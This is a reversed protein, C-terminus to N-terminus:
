SRKEGLVASTKEIGMLRRGVNTLTKLKINPILDDPASIQLRERGEENLLSIFRIFRSNEQGIVTYKTYSLSLFTHSILYTCLCVFGIQKYLKSTIEKRACILAPAVLIALGVLAASQYRPSLSQAVGFRQRAIAPLILVSASFLAGTLWYATVPLWDKKHRSIAITLIVLMVFLGIISLFITPALSFTSIEAPFNINIFIDINPFWGLGRLVTAFSVGTGIFNVVDKFFSNEFPIEDIGHGEGHQLKIYTGTALLLVPLFFIVLRAFRRTIEKRQSTECLFILLAALLFLTLILSFGNGFVFPALLALLASFLLKSKNGEKLYDWALILAAMSLAHSLIICQTFAWQTTVQHLSNVVYLLALFRSISTLNQEDWTRAQTSLLCFMRILLSNLLYGCLALTVISVSLLGLYHIGFLKVQAFYLFFFLPIFHENHAEFSIKWGENFFRDIAFWEDWYYFPSLRFHFAFAFLLLLLFFELKNLQIKLLFFAFFFSLATGLVLSIGIKNEFSVLFSEVFVNTYVLVLAISISLLYSFLKPINNPFSTNHNEGIKIM